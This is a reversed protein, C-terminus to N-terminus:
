LGHGAARGASVVVVPPVASGLAHPCAIVVATVMRGLAFDFSSGV